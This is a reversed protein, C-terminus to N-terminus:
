ATLLATPLSPHVGHPAHAQNQHHHHHRKNHAAPDRKGCHLETGTTTVVEYTGFALVHEVAPAAAVAESALSFVVYEVTLAAVIEHV